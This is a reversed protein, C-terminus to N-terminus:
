FAGASAMAARAMRAAQAKFARKSLKRVTGSKADYRYRLPGAANRRTRLVRRGAKSAKARAAKAKAASATTSRKIDLLDLQYQATVNGTEDTVDFFETDGVRMHITECVAPNPKCTGDGQPEASADVLFVATKGDGELGLYVLIPEEASPLATLRPLNRKPLSTEETSGFRVTLSYLEYRPKPTDPADAVPPEAAPPVTVTPGSPVGGTGPDGAPNAPTLPVGGSPTPTATPEPAPGPQFPNKRAGLM